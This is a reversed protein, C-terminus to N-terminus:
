VTLSTDFSPALFLLFLPVDLVGDGVFAAIGAATEILNADM